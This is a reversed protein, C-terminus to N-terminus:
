RVERHILLPTATLGLLIGLWIWMEVRYQLINFQTSFLTLVACAVTVGAVALASDRYGQLKLRSFTRIGQNLVTVIMGMLFFAAPFGADSAYHLWTNHADSGITKTLSMPGHGVFPRTVALNWAATYIEFRGADVRQNGERGSLREVTAVGLESRLITDASAAITFAVLGFALILYIRSRKDLLFKACLMGILMLAIALTSQRSGLLLTFVTTAILTGISVLRSISTIKSLGAADMIPIVCLLVLSFGIYNTGLAAPQLIQGAYWRVYGPELIRAADMWSVLLVLSVLLGCVSAVRLTNIMTQISNSTRNLCLHTLHAVSMVILTFYVGDLSRGVDHRADTWFLSGFMLWVTFPTATLLFGLTSKRLLTVRTTNLAVHASLSSASLIVIVAVLLRPSWLVSALGFQLELIKGGYTYLLGLGLLAAAWHSVRPRRMVRRQVMENAHAHSSPAEWTM